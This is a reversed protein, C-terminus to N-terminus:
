EVIERHIDLKRLEYAAIAKVAEYHKVMNPLVLRHQSKCLYSRIILAAVAVWMSKYNILCYM